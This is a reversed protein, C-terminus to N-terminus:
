DTLCYLTTPNVNAGLANYEATTMVQIKDDVTQKTAISNPQTPTHNTTLLEAGLDIQADTDALGKVTGCKIYNNANQAVLGSDTTMVWTPEAAGGSWDSNFRIENSSFALSNTRSLVYVGDGGAIGSTNSGFTINKSPDGVNFGVVSGSIIASAGLSISADNAAPGSVSPTQIGGSFYSTATGSAFFAYNTQGGVGAPINTFFARNEESALVGDTTDLQYGTLRKVKSNTAGLKANSFLFASEVSDAAYSPNASYCSASTTVGSGFAPINNIGYATSGDVTGQVAFRSTGSGAGGVAVNGDSRVRLGYSQAAGVLIQCDAGLAISADGTDVTFTNASPSDLVVTGDDSQIPLNGTVHTGPEWRKATDDWVLYQGDATGDSAAAWQTGDWHLLQGESTGQPLTQALSVWGSDQTYVKFDEVAM